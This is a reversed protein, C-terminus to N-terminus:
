LDEIIRQRKRAIALERQPTAQQKKIFGHLIYIQKGKAFVYLTRVETKGRGRLEFLGNGMARTHPMGLSAGYEELLALQRTLKARTAVQLSDIFKEIVPQGSPTEYFVVEWVMLMNISRNKSLSASSNVFILM